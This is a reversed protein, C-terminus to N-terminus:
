PAAVEAPRAANRPPEIRPGWTWRKMSHERDDGTCEVVFEDEDRVLVVQWAEDGEDRAWYWGERDPEPWLTFEESRNRNLARTLLGIAEDAAPSNLDGLTDIAETIAACLDRAGAARARQQEASKSFRDADKTAQDREAKLTDIMGVVQEHTQGRVAGLETWFDDVQLAKRACESEKNDLAMEWADIVADVETRREDGYYPEAVGDETDEAVWGLGSRVAAYDWTPPLRLTPKVPESFGLRFQDPALHVQACAVVKPMHPHSEGTRVSIRIAGCQEPLEPDVIFVSGDVRVVPYSVKCLHRLTEGMVSLTLVVQVGSDAARVMSQHVTEGPGNAALVPAGNVKAPPETPEADCREQAALVSKLTGLDGVANVLSSLRGALSMVLRLSALDAETWGHSLLHHRANTGLPLEPWTADPM